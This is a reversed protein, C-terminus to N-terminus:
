RSVAGLLTQRMVEVPAERGTWLEFQAVGQYLLMELGNVCACGRAAGDRLLRTQLPAYVIDMIVRYEDLLSQDLPSVENDPEMGVSTANILIEAAHEPKEDLPSWLCELQDALRRGKSESRSKIEVGAGAEILGFGIARAAGGAGLIVARSGPLEIHNLLAKNSGLWDTNTGFLSASQGERRVVVTNVAGIKEAVPDVDDLLGLVQEKYPITVSAGEIHMERMGHLAAQLDDTLLPVYVRDEDCAAFAQNHMLPSLSHSVPNGIIGYVKTKGNIQMNESGDKGVM